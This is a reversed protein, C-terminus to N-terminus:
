PTLHESLQQGQCETEKKMAIDITKLKVMM